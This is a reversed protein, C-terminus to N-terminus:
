AGGGEAFRRRMDPLPEGDVRGRRGDMADICADITETVPDVFMDCEGRVDNIQRGDRCVNCGIM